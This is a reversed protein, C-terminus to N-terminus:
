LANSAKNTLLSAILSNTAEVNIQRRSNTINLIEDVLYGDFKEMTKTPLFIALAIPDHKGEAIFTFHAQVQSLSLDRYFISLRDSTVSLEQSKAFAWLTTMIKSGSWPFFRIGGQEQVLCKGDIAGSLRAVRRSAGLLLKANDDIYVPVEDQELVTKMQRAIKDGCGRGTKNFFPPKMNKAPLVVVTAESSLIDVVVWRRGGLL